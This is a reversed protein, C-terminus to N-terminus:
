RHACARRVRAFRAVAPECLFSYRLARSRTRLSFLLWARTLCPPFSPCCGNGGGDGKEGRRNGNTDAGSGRGAHLVRARCREVAEFREQAFQPRPCAQLLFRAAGEVAAAASEQVEVLLDINRFTPIEKMDGMVRLNHTWKKPDDPDTSTPNVCLTRVGADAVWNDNGGNGVFLVDMPSCRHEVVLRRIFEAKGQFDFTTGVIGDIIGARDFTVENAKIAEFKSATDGLVHRILSAISGSVIYLKIQRESLIEILDRFGDVLRLKSSLKLLEPKTLNKNRFKESTIACWEDHSIEGRRYKSHFGACENIEYGLSEWIMEWTTRGTDHLAITGDFDFIVVRTRFPLFPFVTTGVRGKKGSKDNYYEVYHALFDDHMGARLPGPCGLAVELKALLNYECDQFYNDHYGDFGTRYKRLSELYSIRQRNVGVERALDRVSLGKRTRFYFLKFANIKVTNRKIITAREKIHTKLMAAWQTRLVNTIDELSSFPVVYNNLNQAYVDDILDFILPDDVSAYKITKNKRNKQYTRYESLVNGDVFIYIPINISRATVYEKATISNYKRSQAQIQHTPPSGYRGGIILVFMDSDAVGEYCSEDFPKQWDFGIGGKEFLRPTYGMSDIFRSVHERVHQLDVYTSSVFVSPKM